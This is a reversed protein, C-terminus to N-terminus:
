YLNFTLELTASLSYLRAYGTQHSREVIVSTWSVLCTFINEKLFWRCDSISWFWLLFWGFRGVFMSDVDCFSTKAAIVEWFVKGRFSWAITKSVISPVGGFFGYRISNLLINRSTFYWIQIWFRLFSNCEDQLFIILLDVWVYYDVCWLYGSLLIWFFVYDQCIFWTNGLIRFLGIKSWSDFYLIIGVLRIEKRRTLEIALPRLFTSLKLLCYQEYWM